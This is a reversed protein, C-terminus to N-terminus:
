FISEIRSHYSQGSLGHAIIIQSGFKKFRVIIHVASKQYVGIIEQYLQVFCQTCM